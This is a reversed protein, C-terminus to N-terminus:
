QNGLSEPGSYAAHITMEVFHEKASSLVVLCTLQSKYRSEVRTGKYLDHTASLRRGVTPRVDVEILQTSIM